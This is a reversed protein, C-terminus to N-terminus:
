GDNEIGWKEWKKIREMTKRFRIKRIIKNEMM